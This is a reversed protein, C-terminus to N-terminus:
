AYKWVIRILQGAFLYSALNAGASFLCSTKLRLGLGNWLIIAEVLTVLSEGVPVYMWGPFFHPLIFWMYPLTCVSALTGFFFVRSSNLDNYLGFARLGMVLVTLEVALTAVLGVLFASEFQYVM